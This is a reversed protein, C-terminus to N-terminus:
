GVPGGSNQLMAQFDAADVDADNDLDASVCDSDPSVGQGFCNLFVQLDELDVDGDGDSDGPLERACSYTVPILTPSSSSARTLQM